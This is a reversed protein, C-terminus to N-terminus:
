NCLKYNSKNKIKKKFTSRDKVTKFLKETKKWDGNHKKRHYYCLVYQREELFTKYLAKVM